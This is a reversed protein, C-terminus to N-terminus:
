SFTVDKGGKIECLPAPMSVTNGENIECKILPVSPSFAGGGGQGNASAPLTVLTFASILAALFLKKM